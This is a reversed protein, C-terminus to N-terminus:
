VYQKNNSRFGKITDEITDHREYFRGERKRESFMIKLFPRSYSAFEELTMNYDYEENVEDLENQLIKKDEEDEINLRSPTIEVRVAMDCAIIVLLTLHQADFTALNGYYRYENYFKSQYDFSKLQKSELHHLGQFVESLIILSKEANSSIPKKTYHKIIDIDNESLCYRYNEKQKSM